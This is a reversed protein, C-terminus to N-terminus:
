IIIKKYYDTCIFLNFIVNDLEQANEVSSNADNNFINVFHIHLHYTSPHCHFYIKLDDMDLKYKEKIIKCTVNKM